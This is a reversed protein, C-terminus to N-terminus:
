AKGKLKGALYRQEEKMVRVRQEAKKQELLKAIQLKDLLKNGIGGRLKTMDKIPNNMAKTVESTFTMRLAKM